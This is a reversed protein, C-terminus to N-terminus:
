TELSAGIQSCLERSEQQSVTGEETSEQGTSLKILGILGRKHSNPISRGGRRKCSEKMPKISDGEDGPRKLPGLSTSRKRKLIDLAEFIRGHPFHEKM